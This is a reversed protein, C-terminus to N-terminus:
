ESAYLYLRGIVGGVHLPSTGLRESVLSQLLLCVSSWIVAGTDRKRAQEESVVYAKLIEMSLGRCM